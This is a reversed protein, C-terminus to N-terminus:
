DQRKRLFTPIDYEEDDHGQSRMSRTADRQQNRIITPVDLDVKSGIRKAADSKLNKLHRKDKEFSDGFGTAIATIKIKEGLDENIVLGVIINADEHVKEHVIRSAEDFEEMTM